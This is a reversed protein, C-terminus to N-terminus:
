SGVEGPVKLPFRFAPTLELFLHNRYLRPSRIEVEYKGAKVEDGVVFTWDFLRSIGAPIVQTIPADFDKLLSASVPFGNFHLFVRNLDFDLQAENPNSVRLHAKIECRKYDNIVTHIEVTIGGEEFVGSHVEAGPEFTAELREGVAGRVVAAGFAEVNSLDEPGGFPNWCGALLPLLCVIGARRSIM